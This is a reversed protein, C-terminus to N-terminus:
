LNSSITTLVFFPHSFNLIHYETKSGVGQTTLTSISTTLIIFNGKLKIHEFSSSGLFLVEYTIYIMEPVLCIHFIKVNLKRSSLMTVSDSALPLFLCSIVLQQYLLQEYINPMSVQLMIHQCQRKERGEGGREVEAGGRVNSFM